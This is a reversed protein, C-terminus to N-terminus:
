ADEDVVVETAEDVAVSAVVTADGSETAEDAVDLTM